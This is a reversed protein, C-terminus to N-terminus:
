ERDLQWEEYWIMQIAELTKETSKAPDDEFEPLQCIWAHLDTFRVSLPDKDPFKEYIAEGIERVDSWQWAM